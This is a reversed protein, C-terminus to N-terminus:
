PRPCLGGEGVAKWYLPCAGQCATFSGCSQCVAPAFRKQKFFAARESFWVDRFPLRTLNGVPEDWSSCPLVGGDAAVSLLGDLAACSKNGLGRAVPNYTCFPTPSYWFFTLGEAFAAERVADVVAGIDAYSIFLDQRFPEVPIYMNMAFRWIGLTKLFPPMSPAAARSLATITTNTQVSVGADMLAQIGKLTEEFAGDRGSLEDHLTATPAELSIQATRLGAKYLSAARKKDALTGNSVLNVSLGIKVAYQILTELDDRLLPEGGTFSFFPIKAENKFVDIINKWEQTSLERNGCRAAIGDGNVASSLGAYCFLCRNNCCYTIAIEGLIPLQTYSFDFPIRKIRSEAEADGSYLGALDRFFTEIQSFADESLTDASLAASSKKGVAALAAMKGGSKLYRILAAASPNTKYVRNPPLILAGDDERAFIHTGARAWFDDIWKFNRMDKM